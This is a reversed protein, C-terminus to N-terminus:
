GDRNEKRFSIMFKRAMRGTNRIGSAEYHEQLRKRLVKKINTDSTVEFAKKLAELETTRLIKEDNMNLRYDMFDKCTIALYAKGNVEFWYKGQQVYMGNRNFVVPVELYEESLEEALVEPDLDLNMEIYYPLPLVKTKYRVPNTHKM